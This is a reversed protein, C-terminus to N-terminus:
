CIAAVTRRVITMDLIQLAQAYESFKTELSMESKWGAIKGNLTANILTKGQGEKQAAYLLAFEARIESAAADSTRAYQVLARVYPSM